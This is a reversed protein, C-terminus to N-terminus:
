SDTTFHITGMQCPDWWNGLNWIPSWVSDFNQWVVNFGCSDIVKPTIGIISFPIKIVATRFGEGHPSYQVSLSHYCLESLRMCSPPCLTAVLEETKGTSLTIELQKVSDQCNGFYLLIKEPWDNPATQLNLFLAENNYTLMFYRKKDVRRLEFKASKSDFFSILTQEF